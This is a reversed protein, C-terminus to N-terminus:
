GCSWYAGIIIFRQFKDLYKNIGGKGNSLTKSLNPEIAIFYKNIGNVIDKPTNLINNGDSIM